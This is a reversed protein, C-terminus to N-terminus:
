DDAPDAAALSYASGDSSRRLLGADVLYRRLLATDSHYDALRENVERESLTDDPAFADAAVWALLDHREASNAPFEQIRGDRVFRMVGQPRRPADAALMTAFRRPLLVLRGAVEEVVGTGLLRARLHRGRSPAMSALEADADMGLSLLALIRRADDNALAAIVPRWDQADM